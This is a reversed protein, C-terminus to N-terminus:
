ANKQKKNKASTARKILYKELMKEVPQLLGFAFVGKFFLVKYQSGTFSQIFTEVFLEDIIFLFGAFALTLAAASKGAKAKTLEDITNQLEVNKSNLSDNLNNLKNQLRDSVQTVLKAQELLDEYSDCMKLFGEKLEFESARTENFMSRANELLSAEKIFVNKKAM